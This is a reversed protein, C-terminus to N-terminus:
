LWKFLNFNLQYVHNSDAKKIDEGIDKIFATFKRQVTKFTEEDASFTAVFQEKEEVGLAQLRSLSFNQLLLQYVTMLPHDKGFHINADPLATIEETDCDIAIFQLDKLTALIDALKKDNYGLVSLLLAPNKRYSEIHLAIHTIVFHPDKLYKVQSDYRRTTRQKQAKAVMTSQCFKIRQQLYDQRKDCNSTARQRLLELYNYEEHDVELLDSISFLLDETLNLEGKNLIRSLYSNQINLKKAIYSATLHPKSKRKERM